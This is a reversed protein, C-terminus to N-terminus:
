SPRWNKPPKRRTLACVAPLSLNETEGYKAKTWFFSGSDDSDLIYVDGKYNIGTRKKYEAPTICDKDFFKYKSNADTESIFLDYYLKDAFRVQHFANFRRRFNGRWSQYATRLDRFNMRGRAILKQFKKLKRRMRKAGDPHPLRLVKGSPLLRYKGKLFDVGDSLKVIRTKKMNVTIKMKTCLETIVSLCELLYERSEHILYMDDM